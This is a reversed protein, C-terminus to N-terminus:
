KSAKLKKLMQISNTNNPDLQIAKEYYTIAQERKGATAYGEALSDFANSSNPYQFTMLEFITIADDFKKENLYYYGLTNMNNENLSKIGAQKYNAVAKTAGEKEVEQMFTILNPNFKGYGVWKAIDHQGKGFVEDMVDQAISLGNASNTFYVFGKKTDINAVFLAKADGQDGWHWCYRATPDVELGVGLGWHITAKPDNAEVKIQPTFMADRTKKQLGTGNLIACIFLAYDHATTRMSAAANAHPYDALGQKKGNWRHRFAYAARHSEEFVFSSHEMHLPTFVMEKVIVEIKKGTLHEMVRSLMVFGEGSYNFREGPTFLIPLKGGERDERWNPFGASHSLVRRATVNVLRADDGVDYNNGLYGTLPKDLDLTGADVMKLAAYATVVKTLSAAEFLSTPTVPAKSSDNLIGFVQEKSIKGKEILAFALGPIVDRQMLAPIYQQAGAAFALLSFCLASLLKKM